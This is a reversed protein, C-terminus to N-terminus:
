VFLSGQANLYSFDRVSHENNVHEIMKIYTRCCEGICLERLDGVIQDGKKFPHGNDRCFKWFDDDYIIKKGESWLAIRAFRVGGSYSSSDVSYFPFKTNMDQSTLGFGHVRLDPKKSWITNWVKTLWGDINQSMVMGGLAIYDYEEIYRELWKIPEGMHFCPMPVLGEKEMIKQNEWTKQPSKIDDLVAYLEPKFRHLFDIYEKIDISVGQTASSFAGSDIFFNIGFETRFDTLWLMKKKFYHYSFLVNKHGTKLVALLDPKTSPAAFYLMM